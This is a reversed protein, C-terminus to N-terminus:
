NAVVIKASFWKGKYFAKVFYIGTSLSSVNCDIIERSSVPIGFLTKGTMDVLYIDKVDSKRVDIKLIDRCPNPYVKIIDSVTLNNVGEEPKEDSPNPVFKDSPEPDLDSSCV